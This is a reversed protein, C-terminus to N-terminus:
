YSTLKFKKAFKSRVLYTSRKKGNLFKFCSKAMPPILPTAIM